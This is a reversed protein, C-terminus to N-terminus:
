VSVAIESNLHGPASRAKNNPMNAEEAKASQNPSQQSTCVIDGINNLLLTISMICLGMDGISIRVLSSFVQQGEASTDSGYRSTALFSFFSTLDFVGFMVAIAVTKAIKRRLKRESSDSHLGSRSGTIEPFVSSLTEAEAATMVSGNGVGARDFLTAMRRALLFVKNTIWFVAFTNFILVWALWIPYMARYLIPVVGEDSPDTFVIGFAYCPTATLIHIVGHAIYLGRSIRKNAFPMLTDIALTEAFLLLLPAITSAISVVALAAGSFLVTSLLLHVLTAVIVAVNAALLLRLATSSPARRLRAALFGLNTLALLLGAAEAAFGIRVAAM